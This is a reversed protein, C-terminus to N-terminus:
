PTAETTKTGLLFFVEAVLDLTRSNQRQKSASRKSRLCPRFFRSPHGKKPHKKLNLSTLQSFPLICAWGHQRCLIVYFDKHPSILWHHGTGYPRLLGKYIGINGDYKRKGRHYIKLFMGKMSFSTFRHSVLCHRISTNKIVYIYIHINYWIYVLTGEHGM